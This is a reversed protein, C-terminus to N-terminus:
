SLNEDDLKPLMLTKTSGSWEMSDVLAVGARKNVILRLMSV